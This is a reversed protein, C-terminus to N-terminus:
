IIYTINNITFIYRIIVIVHLKCKHFTQMLLNIITSINFINWHGIQTFYENSYKAACWCVVIVRLNIYHM